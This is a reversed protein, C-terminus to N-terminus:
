RVVLSSTADKVTPSFYWGLHDYGVSMTSVVKLKKAADLGESDIKDTLLCFLGDKDQLSKILEEKPIVSDDKWYSVQCSRELISMKDSPLAARCRTVFVKPLGSISSM